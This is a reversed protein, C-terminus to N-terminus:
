TSSHSKWWFALLLMLSYYIILWLWNIDPWAITLWEALPLASLEQILTILLSQLLIALVLPIQGIWPILGAVNLLSIIPIFPLVIINTLVALFTVQGSLQLIIPLTMLFTALSSISLEKLNKMWELTTETDNNRNSLILGLSALFSLQFSASALYFPNIWLLILGSYTLARFSGVRRGLFLLVSISLLVSTSSRLVPPQLGVLAILLIVGLITVILRWKRPIRIKLAMGELFTIVLVVQFGSVAVLHTLGLDKIKGYLERSFKQTGGLVLGYSLAFIDECGSSPAFIKILFKFHNCSAIQYTDEVYRRINQVNQLALCLADCARDQKLIQKVKIQGLLGLSLASRDFSDTEESFDFTSKDGLASYEYGISLLEPSSLEWTGSGSWVFYILRNFNDPKRDLVRFSIEQAEVELRNTGQISLLSNALTLSILIILVLNAGHLQKRLTQWIQQM